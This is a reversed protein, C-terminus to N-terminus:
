QANIHANMGPIEQKESRSPQTRMQSICAQPKVDLPNWSPLFTPLMRKRVV